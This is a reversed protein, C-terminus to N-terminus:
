DSRKKTILGKIGGTTTKAPTMKFFTANWRTGVRSKEPELTTRAAPAAVANTSKESSSNDNGHNTNMIKGIVVYNIGAIIFTTTWLATRRDM